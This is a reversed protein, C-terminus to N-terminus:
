IANILLMVAAGLFVLYNMLMGVLRGIGFPKVYMGLAHLIRGGLLLVGLAWVMASSAGSFEVLALLLLGMPAYETFNGFARIRKLLVPDGGDGLSVKAVGRQQSVLFTLVLLLVALGSGTLSTIPLM